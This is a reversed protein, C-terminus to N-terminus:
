VHTFVGCTGFVIDEQAPDTATRVWNGEWVRGRVGMVRAALIHTGEM